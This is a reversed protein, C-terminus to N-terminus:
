AEILRAQASLGQFGSLHLICITHPSSSDFTIKFSTEIGEVHSTALTWADKGLGHTNVAFTAGDYDQILSVGVLPATVLPGHHLRRGVQDDVLHVVTVEGNGAVICLMLALEQCEGFRPSDLM